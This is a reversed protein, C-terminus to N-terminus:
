LNSKNVYQRGGEVGLLTRRSDTNDGDKYRHGERIEM